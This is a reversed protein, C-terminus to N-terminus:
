LVNLLLFQQTPAGQLWGQQSKLFQHCVSLLGEWPTTAMMGIIHIDCRCCKIRAVAHEIPNPPIPAPQNKFHNWNDFSFAIQHHRGAHKLFTWSPNTNIDSLFILPRPSLTLICSHGLTVPAIVLNGGPSFRIAWTSVSRSLLTAAEKRLMPTMQTKEPIIDQSSM